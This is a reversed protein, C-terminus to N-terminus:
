ESLAELLYKRFKPNQLFLTVISSELLRVLAEDGNKDLHYNIGYEQVVAHLGEHFLNIAKIKKKSRKYIRIEHKNFDTIGWSAMTDIDVVKYDTGAIRLSKIYM